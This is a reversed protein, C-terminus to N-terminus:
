ASYEMVPWDAEKAAKRLTFDPNVACPQGVAGLLLLDPGHGAYAVSQALNIGHVEAYQRLWAGGEYGGLIPPLLKGTAEGDRFELRNCLLEDYAPLHAALPQMVQEILESLVVVRYGDRKMKRMLELGSGLLKHRLKGDVFEDGLAVVRDESMGRYTLHVLRQGFSRDNQGLAGFLPVSLAVQGFRLARERMGARHAAMHAAVQVTIYEPILVGEARFFAAKQETSM